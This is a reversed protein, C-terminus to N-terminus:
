EWKGTYSSYVTRIIWIKTQSASGQKVWSNICQKYNRVFDFWNNVFIRIFKRFYNTLSMTRNTNEDEVDDGDNYNNNNYKKNTQERELYKNAIYNWNCKM